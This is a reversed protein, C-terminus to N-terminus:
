HKYHYNYPRRINTPPHSTYPSNPKTADFYPCNRRHNMYMLCNYTQTYWTPCHMYSYLQNYPPILNTWCWWHCRITNMRNYTMLQLHQTRSMCRNANMYWHKYHYTYPRRINTPPHSTYPSNTKPADFYLCNRCHNMYMLCSYTQTNYIPYRTNNNLRNYTPKWDYLGIMYAMLCHQLHTNQSMDWPYVSRRLYNCLHHINTPPRMTYPSNLIPRNCCWNNHWPTYLPTNDLHHHTNHLVTQINNDPLFYQRPVTNYFTNQTRNPRIDNYAWYSLPKNCRLNNTCM